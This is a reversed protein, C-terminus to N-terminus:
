PPARRHARRSGADAHRAPGGPSAGCPALATRAVFWGLLSAFAAGGLTLFLLILRLEALTSNTDAMGHTVLVAYGTDVGARARTSPPGVDAVFAYSGSGRRALARVAARQPAHARATRRQLDFLDHWREADAPLGAHHGPATASSGCCGATPPPSSRPRRTGSSSRLTATTTRSPATSPRSSSARWTRLSSRHPALPRQARARLLTALSAVAVAVAVASASALMVRRQFSM